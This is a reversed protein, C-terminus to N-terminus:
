IIEIEAHLAGSAKITQLIQAMERPSTGLINLADILEQLNNNTDVITFKGKEEKVDLETQQVIAGSGYPLVKSKTLAADLLSKEEANFTDPDAFQNNTGNSTNTFNQNVVQNLNAASNASDYAKRIAQAADNAAKQVEDSTKGAAQAAQAATSAANAIIQNINQTDDASSTSHHTSSSSSSGSTNNNIQPLYVQPTEVIRVTISGHTLAIPSVRVKDSIVIVGTPDIIIKAKQDPQVTLQEISTMLGIIEKESANAPLKISVSSADNATAIASDLSTNIAEAVRKATTLDPNKLSLVQHTIQKLKFPIEKEIIAGNTIKANTPVGSTQTANVGSNSIGSVVLEGQAVAYVSGDAAMLPTVLLSGGQLSKCDGLASVVVDITSGAKSFPPLKATVMVAAVNKGGPQTNDRINVGLRELMGTLSEMTFPSSSLSDGTGNLGVVLGYGVLMNDRFGSFKTIDKLRVTVSNNNQSPSRVVKPHMVIDNAYVSIITMIWLPLRKLM